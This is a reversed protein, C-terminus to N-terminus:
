LFAGFCECVDNQTKHVIISAECSQYGLIICEPEFLLKADQEHRPNTFDDSVSVFMIKPGISWFPHKVVKTGWFLANSSSCLKQMKNTGFTLSIM